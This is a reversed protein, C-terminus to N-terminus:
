MVRWGARFSAQIGVTLGPRLSQLLAIRLRYDLWRQTVQESSTKEDSM